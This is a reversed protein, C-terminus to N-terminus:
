KIHNSVAELLVKLAERKKPYKRTYNASKILEKKLDGFARGPDRPLDVVELRAPTAETPEEAPVEVQKPAVVKKRARTSKPPEVVEVPAKEESM